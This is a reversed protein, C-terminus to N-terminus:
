TKLLYIFFILIKIQFSETKPPSIKLVNSYAHKRLTSSNLSKRWDFSLYKQTLTRLRHNYLQLQSINEQMSQDKNSKNCTYNLGKNQRYLLSRALILYPQINSFRRFIVIRIDQWICNYYFRINRLNCIFSCFLLLRLFWKVLTKM